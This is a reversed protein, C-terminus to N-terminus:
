SPSKKRWASIGASTHWFLPVFLRAQKMYLVVPQTLFFFFPCVCSFRTSLRPPTHARERRRSRAREISAAFACFTGKKKKKKRKNTIRKEREGLSRAVRRGPSSWWFLPLAFTPGDGGKKRRGTNRQSTREKEMRTRKFDIAKKKKQLEM